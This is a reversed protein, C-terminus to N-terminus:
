THVLCATLPWSAERDAEAPRVVFREERVDHIGVDGGNDLLIAEGFGAEALDEALMRLTTGQRNSRGPVVVSGVQGASDVVLAQHPYIGEGFRILLHEGELHHTSRSGLDPDARNAKAELAPVLHEVLQAITIHGVASRALEGSLDIRVAEGAVAAERLSPEAILSAMGFDVAQGELMVFPFALLHRPDACAHPHPPVPRGSRVLDPGSLSFRPRTGPTRAGRGTEDVHLWGAAPGPVGLLPGRPLQAQVGSNMGLNGCGTIALPELDPRRERFRELHGHPGITPPFPARIEAPATIRRGARMVHAEGSDRQIPGSAVAAHDLILHPGGGDCLGVIWAEGPVPDAGPHEVRRMPIPRIPQM